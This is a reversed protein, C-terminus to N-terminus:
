GPRCVRAGPQASAARGADDPVAAEWGSTNEGMGGTAAKGATEHGRGGDVERRCQRGSAAVM